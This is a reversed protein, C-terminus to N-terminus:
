PAEPPNKLPKDSERRNHAPGNLRQWLSLLGAGFGLFIFLILLVPLTGFLHDLGYGVAGSIVICMVFHIAMTGGDSYGKAAALAAGGEKGKAPKPSKEANM